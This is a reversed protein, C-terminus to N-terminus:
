EELKSEGKVEETKTEQKTVEVAEEMKTEKKGLLDELAREGVKVVKCNVQSIDAGITNGRLMRRRRLGEINTRLGVGKGTIIRKRMIGEIDKRMPFGDKDSGGSIQLEYGHLGLFDGQISDGIKKGIIPADKQDKEIQYSKGQHSVVFKFVAM